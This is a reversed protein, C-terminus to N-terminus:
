KWTCLPMFDYKILLICCSLIILSSWFELRKFFVEDIKIFFLITMISVFPLLFSSLYLLLTGFNLDGIHIIKNKAIIILSIILLLIVIFIPFLPHKIFKLKLVLIKKFGITVIILLSLLCLVFNIMLLIIKFGNIKKLTSFGTSIFKGEDNEYLVHSPRVKDKNQFLGNGIHDLNINKTQFPIIVLSSDKIKLKSYSSIIDFLKFPIIKTIKPIYYGEWEKFKESSFKNTTKNHKKKIELYNILVDNFKEYNATESDTNHSIFFGKKEEPFIYLMSRYGIINGSHALGIVNFRDRKSMGLAYGNDIGKNFAITYKPKGYEEFFSGKIIQQDLVKGKNLIFNILIGMDNATTTFQAAPRLYIPLARAELGNEFHGMALDEDLYLGEQSKFHFTSNLMGIQKLLCNDMYNEYAQNTIKEILLGLISYGMNSYSFSEGPRQYIQLVHTNKLYFESLPTDPKSSTSFFHWLRLDSLGSTHDILHRITVPNTAEWPNKIPLDNIYKKIPDDLNLKNETALKLIGLALITKTISGIHVKHKSSLLEKTETNKLGTADIIISDNRVTSWVAGSLGEKELLFQIEKKTQASVLCIFLLFPMLYKLFNRNKM